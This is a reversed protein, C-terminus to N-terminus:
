FGTKEVLTDYLEQTSQETKQNFAYTHGGMDEIVICAGCSCYAALTYNGGSNRFNGSQIYSDSYGAIRSGRQFNGDLRIDPEAPIGFGFQVLRTHVGQLRNASASTTQYLCNGM